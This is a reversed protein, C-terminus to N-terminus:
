PAPANLQISQIYAGDDPHTVRVVAGSSLSEKLMGLWTNHLVRQYATTNGPAFWVILGEVEGNSDTVGVFAFDDGVNLCSVVGITQAM